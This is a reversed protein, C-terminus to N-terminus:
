VDRNQHHTGAIDFLQTGFQISGIRWFMSIPTLVGAVLLLSQITPGNGFLPVAGFTAYAIWDALGCVLVLFNFRKGNRIWFIVLGLARVLFSRNKITPKDPPHGDTNTRNFEQNDFRRAVTQQILSDVRHFSRYSAIAFGCWMMGINGTFQFAGWGLSFGWIPSEIVHFIRDLYM